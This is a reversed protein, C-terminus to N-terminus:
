DDSKVLYSRCTDRAGVREGVLSRGEVFAPGPSRAGSLGCAFFISALLARSSLSVSLLMDFILLCSWSRMRWPRAASPVVTATSSRCSSSPSKTELTAASPQSSAPTSAPSSLHYLRECSSRFGRKLDLHRFLHHLRRCTGDIRHNTCCATPSGFSRAVLVPSEIEKGREYETRKANRHNNIIGGAVKNGRRTLRGLQSDRSRMCLM